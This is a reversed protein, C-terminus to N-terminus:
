RLEYLAVNEVHHTHPFMDVPQVKILNYKEALLKSDRAQTAPNCSVYVIRQPEAELLRAVVSPHMGDRPPDTIVVDPKGHENIFDETLIDKMDGAFFNCNSVNNREANEKADEIAEIVYEVGTVKAAKDAIYIAISGTGTYLDYVNEKGTLGAFDRTISYLIEAQESNTQFFSQPQIRFTRNGLSEEIYPNGDYLIADLGNLTDNRKENIVYMLSVLGTFTSKIYNMVKEIIEMEHYRFSVLVMWEGKKNCRVLLNRMMGEQTVLDFFSIGAQICFSWLGRQIENVYPPMLHCYNVDLVKDFRGPIHFGLAKPKDEEREELKNFSTVWAKDSFTLDLKNRYGTTKESGLIPVLEFDQIGGIREFADVVQQQKFALQDSYSLHQWKCGGCVTFHECFPQIRQESKKHFKVIKGEQFNKKKAVIQVDVVDGPAAFKVFIVQNEHRGICHGESVATTIELNEILKFKNFKRRM